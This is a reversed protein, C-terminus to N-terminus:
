RQTNVTCRTMMQFRNTAANTTYCRWRRAPGTAAPSLVGRRMARKRDRVFLEQAARREATGKLADQRGGSAAGRRQRCSPLERMSTACARPLVACGCRVEPSAAGTASSPNNSRGTAGAAAGPDWWAKAASTPADRSALRQSAGSSADPIHSVGHRHKYLDCAAEHVLHPATGRPRPQHPLTLRGASARDRVWGARLQM